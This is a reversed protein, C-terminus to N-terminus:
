RVGQRSFESLFWTSVGIDSTDAAGASRGLIWDGHLNFGSSDGGGCWEGRRRSQGFRRLAMGVAHELLQPRVVEMGGGLGAQHGLEPVKQGRWCRHLRVGTRDVRAAGGRRIRDGIRDRSRDRVRAGTERGARRKVDNGSTCSSHHKPNLGARLRAKARTTELKSTTAFGTRERGFSLSPSPRTLATAAPPCGDAEGDSGKGRNGRERSGEAVRGSRGPGPASFRPNVCDTAIQASNRGALGEPRPFLASEKSTNLGRLSRAKVSSVQYGSKVRTGANGEVPAEGGAVPRRDRQLLGNDRRYGDWTIVASRLVGERLAGIREIARQSQENRLDTKLQVRIAGLAEFAHMFLLYKCETNIPSRQYPLGIWTWGIEIGRDPRRMDIYRTSGVARQDALRIIAFAVQRGADVEAQAERIWAHTDALDRLPPRPLYRWIAPARGIELLHEAHQPGLPELRARRGTLTVPRPDFSTNADM